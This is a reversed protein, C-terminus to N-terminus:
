DALTLDNGNSKNSRSATYNKRAEYTRQAEANLEGINSPGEPSNAIANRVLTELEEDSVSKGALDAIQADFYAIQAKYSDRNAISAAEGANIEALRLEFGMRRNGYSQPGNLERQVIQLDSKLSDRYQVLKSLHANDMAALQAEKAKAAALKNELEIRVEAPTKTTRAM